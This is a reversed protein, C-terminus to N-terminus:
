HSVKFYANKISEHALRYLEEFDINGQGLTVSLHLGEMMKLHDNTQKSFDELAKYVTEKIKDSFALNADFIALTEGEIGNKGIGHSPAYISFGYGSGDTLIKADVKILSSMSLIGM